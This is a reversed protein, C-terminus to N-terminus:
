PYSFILIAPFLTRPCELGIREPAFLIEPARIKESGIDLSTGDPLIYQTTVPKSDKEGIKDDRAVESM